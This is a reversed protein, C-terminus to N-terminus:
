NEVLCSVSAVYYVRNEMGCEQDALKVMHVEYCFDENYGIGIIIIIM